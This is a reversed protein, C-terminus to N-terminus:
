STKRGGRRNPKRARIPEAPKDASEIGAAAAVDEAVPQGEADRGSTDAEAPLAAPASAERESKKLDEDRQV